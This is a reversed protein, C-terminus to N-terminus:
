KKAPKDDAYEPAQKSSKEVSALRTTIKDFQAVFDPVDSASIYMEVWKLLNAVKEEGVADLFKVM